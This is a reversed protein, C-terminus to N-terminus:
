SRECIHLCPIVFKTAKPIAKRPNAAEAAALGVLETGGFAFSATVFV